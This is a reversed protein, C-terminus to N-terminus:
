KALYAIMLPEVLQEPVGAERLKVQIEPEAAWEGLRHQFKNFHPSGRKWFETGLEKHYSRLFEQLIPRAQQILTEESIQDLRTQKAAALVAAKQRLKDEYLQMYQPSLVFRAGEDWVDSANLGLKCVAEWLDPDPTIKHYM